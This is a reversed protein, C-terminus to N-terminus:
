KERDVRGCEVFVLGSEIGHDLRREGSDVDARKRGLASDLGVDPVRRVVARRSRLPRRCYRCRSHALPAGKTSRTECLFAKRWPLNAACCRARKVNPLEAM